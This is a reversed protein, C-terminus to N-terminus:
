CDIKDMQAIVYTRDECSVRIDKTAIQAIWDLLTVSGMIIIAGIIINIMRGRLEQKKNPTAIMYQIGVIFIMLISAIYGIMQIVSIVSGALTKTHSVMNTNNVSLMDYLKPVLRPGIVLLIVGICLPWLSAKLEQRKAPNATVWMIGYVLMIIIAGLTGFFIILSQIHYIPDLVTGYKDTGNIATKIINFKGSGANFFGSVNPGGTVVSQGGSGNGKNSASQSVNNHSEDLITVRDEGTLFSETVEIKHGKVNEVNKMAGNGLCEVCVNCVMGNYIFRYAVYSKGGSYTCGEVDCKKGDIESFALRNNNECTLCIDHYAGYIYDSGATDGDFVCLWEYENTNYPCSFVPSGETAYHYEDTYCTTERPESEPDSWDPRCYYKNTEPNYFVKSRANCWCSYDTQYGVLVISTHECKDNSFYWARCDYCYVYVANLGGCSWFKKGAFEIYEAPIYNGFDDVTKCMDCRVIYPKKNKDEGRNDWIMLHGHQALGNYCPIKEFESLDKNKTLAYKTGTEPCYYLLKNAIRVTEMNGHIKGCICKCKHYWEGDDLEVEKGHNVCKTGVATHKLYGCDSYKVMSFNGGNNRFVYKCTKCMYFNANFQKLDRNVNCNSCFIRKVHTFGESQSVEVGDKSGCRFGGKYYIKKDKCETCEVLSYTAGGDASIMVVNCDHCYLYSGSGTSKIVVNRKCNKCTTTRQGTHHSWAGEIELEGNKGYGVSFGKDCIYQEGLQEDSEFKIYTKCSQCELKTWNNGANEKILYKTNQCIYHKGDKLTLTHSKNCAWCMIEESHQFSTSGDINTTAVKKETVSCILEDNSDVIIKGNCNIDGCPVDELYYVNGVSVKSGYCLKVIKKNKMDFYYGSENMGMLSNKFLFDTADDYTIGNDFAIKSNQFLQKTNQWEDFYYLLNNVNLPYARYSNGCRRALGAIGSIGGNGTSNALYFADAHKIAESAGPGVPEKSYCVVYQNDSVTKHKFKIVGNTERTKEVVPYCTYYAGNNNSGVTVYQECTMNELNIVNNKGCTECRTDKAQSINVGFVGSIILFCILFNLMTKNKMIM